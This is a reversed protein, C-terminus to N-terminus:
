LVVKKSDTQEIAMRWDKYRGERMPDDHELKDIMEFVEDHV